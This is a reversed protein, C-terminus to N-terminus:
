STSGVSFFFNCTSVLAAFLVLWEFADIWLLMGSSLMTTVELTKWGIGDNANEGVWNNLNFDRALYLGINYMGITMLRSVLETLSGCLTLLAISVHLGLRRKGARSLIWAVQLIPICLLFWAMANFLNACTMLGRMDYRDQWKQALYESDLELFQAYTYQGGNDKDGNFQKSRLLINLGNSLFFLLATLLCPVDMTRNCV